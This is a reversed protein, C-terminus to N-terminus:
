PEHLHSSVVSIEEFLITSGVVKFIQQTGGPLAIYTTHMYRGLHDTMTM